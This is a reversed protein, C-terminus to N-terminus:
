ITVKEFRKLKEYGQGNKRVRRGYLKEVIRRGIASKRELKGLPTNQYKKFRYDMQRKVADRKKPPIFGSTNERYLEYTKDLAKRDSLGISGEIKRKLHKRWKMGKVGYHMLEDKKLYAYESMASCRM